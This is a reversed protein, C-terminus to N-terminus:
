KYALLAPTGNGSTNNDILNDSTTGVSGSISTTWGTANGTIQSQSLRVIASNDAEVGTGNNSITARRVAVYAQDPSNQAVIGCNENHDIVSDSVTVNIPGIASVFLGDNGNNEIDVHDLVGSVTQSGSPSLLIGDIHNDLIATNSVSLLTSSSASPQFNVGIGEFNRIVSSQIILSGGTNFQIGTTSAVHGGDLTLGSLIVIDTSGANVTIAASGSAPAAIGAEVGNPSTITVSHAIAITGFGASDIATVEGGEAVVNIAQQFTKCPSGFTCPNSDSGYSAVFVRDRQALAPVAILVSGLTALLLTSLPAIRM